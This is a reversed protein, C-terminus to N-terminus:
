RRQAPCVADPTRTPWNKALERCKAQALEKVTDVGAAELLEAYQAGVGTIRMLDAHNAWKLILAGRNRKRASNSRGKASGARDLLDADTMVGAATLKQLTCRGSGKWKKM